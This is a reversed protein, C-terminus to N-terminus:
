HAICGTRSYNLSYKISNIVNPMKNLVMIIFNLIRKIVNQKNPTPRKEFAWVLCVVLGEAFGVMSFPASAIGTITLLLLFFFGTGFTSSVLNVGGTITFSPSLFAGGGGGGVM